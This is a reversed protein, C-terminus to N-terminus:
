VEIVSTHEYPVLKVSTGNSLKVLVPTQYSDRWTHWWIVARGARLHALITDRFTGYSQGYLVQSQIGLARLGKQLGHAYVGYDTLGGYYPADM